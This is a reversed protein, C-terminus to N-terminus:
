LYRAYKMMKMMLGPKTMLANVLPWPREMDGHREIVKELKEKKVITFLEEIESPPINDLIRRISRHMELSQEWEQRWLSEYVGPERAEGLVAGCIRACFGGIAVGGGTNHLLIPGVGGVFINTNPIELDFVEGVTPKVKRIEKIQIPIVNSDVLNKIFVIKKEKPNVSNLIKKLQKYSITKSHREVFKRKRLYQCLNSPLLALPFNKQSRSFRTRKLYYNIQRRFDPFVDLLKKLNENGYFVVRYAVGSDIKKDNWNHSSPKQEEITPYLGLQLSLLTLDSALKYSATKASIEASWNRRNKGMRVRITGDGKLYAKLFEYKLKNPMNFVIFPIEKTKASYGTKFVKQLLLSVLKGGFGINYKCVKGTKPNKGEEEWCPVGFVKEICHKADDIVGTARDNKGFTFYAKQGSSGEAVYYGLLRALEPTAEIINPIELESKTFSIKVNKPIIEKKLFNELPISDHTWYASKYRRPVDTAKSYILKKGGKVRVYKVMEPNEELIMQILDIEKVSQNNPVDLNVLLYDYGKRLKSVKKEELGSEAAVMVSHSETAKVRYGNKLVLEFLNEELGHKLIGKIDHFGPKTADREISLASYGKIEDRLHKVPHEISQPKEMNSNVFAGIRVTRILGNKQIIIPEEADVSTAKVQGAADGVLCTGNVVTEKGDYLPILASTEEEYELAMKKSHLWHMLAEKPNGKRVGIGVRCQKEDVPVVWAFFGPVYHIEVFDTDRELDATVQYAHVYERKPAWASLPGDAAVDCEGTWKKGLVIEVGEGEAEESITKDFVSRDIVFAVSNKKKVEFEQGKPSYFRAGRCKNLISDSYDTNLGDLGKKSILGTCHVPEGIKKHEEYVTVKAGLSAAEKACLLGAPGAGVVIM